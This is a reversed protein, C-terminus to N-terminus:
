CCRPVTGHKHLIALGPLAPFSRTGTGLLSDLFRVHERDRSREVRPVISSRLYLLDETSHVTCCIVTGVAETEKAV